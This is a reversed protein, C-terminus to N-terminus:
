TITYGLKSSPIINPFKENSAAAILSDSNDQFDDSYVGGGSSSLSVIVNDPDSPVYSSLSETHISERFNTPKKRNPIPRKLSPSPSRPTTRNSRPTIIGGKPNIPQLDYSKGKSKTPTAPRSTVPSGQSRPSGQGKSLSVSPLYSHVGADLKTTSKRVSPVPSNESAQPNIVPFKQSTRVSVLNDVISRQSSGGTGSPNDEDSILGQLEPEETSHFQRSDYDTSQMVNNEETMNKSHRTSEMPSNETVAGSINLSENHVGDISDPLSATRAIYQPLNVSQMSANLSEDPLPIDDDDTINDSDNPDAQASPLHVEISRSRSSPM